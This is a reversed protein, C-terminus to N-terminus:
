KNLVGVGRVNVVILPTDPSHSFNWSEGPEGGYILPGTRNAMRPFRVCYLIQIADKTNRRRLVFYSYEYSVSPRCLFSLSFRSRLM